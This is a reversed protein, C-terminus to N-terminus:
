HRATRMPGSQGRLGSWTGAIMARFKAVKEREALGVRVVWLVVTALDFLAWHPHRWAHRRWMAIRNRAIYFHRFPRHNTPSLSIGMVKKISRQGLSHQMHAGACVMILWDRQICKLCFDTDVYDIFLGADFGGVDRFAEVRVLSGSSIVMTVEPMDSEGVATKQFWWRCRPHACLVRHSAGTVPDRFQPGMVAVRERQAHLVWSRAM